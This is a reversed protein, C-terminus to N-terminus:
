SGGNKRRSNSGLPHVAPPIIMGVKDQNRTLIEPGSNSVYVTEGIMVAGLERDKAALRLTLCMGGRLLTVDDGTLWPPEELSLGIGHGLGYETLCDVKSRRIGGMAERFLASVRKGTTLGKMIRAYLAKAGAVDPEKLSSGKAIFTRMGEAWYREFEVAVHLIVTDGESVAADEPPRLSWNAEKPKGILIRVEEAGELYALRDVAAQLIKENLPALPVRSVADFAQAIIHASRRIQDCERESKVRRLRTMLDDAAVIRCRHTAESLFQFQRYPMWQRVGAFGITSPIRKKEKLYAACLKSVDEGSRVDKVWTTTLILQADRAFGECILCVEGKETIVAMAGQPMKTLYNSIYCPHGYDNQGNGYLLLVHIRRKRMENTLKEVRKQFESEPMRIPDWVDRGRKLTPQMTEMTMGRDTLQSIGM